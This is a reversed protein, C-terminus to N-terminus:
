QSSKEENIWSDLWDRIQIAEAQDLLTPWMATVLVRNGCDELSFMDDGLTRMM